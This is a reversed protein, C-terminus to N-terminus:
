EGEGIAAKGCDCEGHKCASCAVYHGASRIWKKADDLQKKMDHIVENDYELTHQHHLKEEALQAKLEEIRKNAALNESRLRESDMEIRLGWYGDDRETWEGISISRGDDDEVEVFRGSEHDPAADLIINIGINM